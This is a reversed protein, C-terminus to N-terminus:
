DAKRKKKKKKQKKQEIAKEIVAYAESANSREAFELATMNERDSRDFLQAGHQILLEAIEARNHRAAFMLPTLGMSKRNVNEGQELLIKVTEIDGSQVLKCFSNVSFDFSYGESPKLDFTTKAPLVVTALLLLAISLVVKKM